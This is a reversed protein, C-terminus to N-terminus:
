GGDKEGREELDEVGELGVTLGELLDVIASLIQMIGLVVVGHHVGLRLNSFDESFEEVVESLGSCMLVLGVALKTVPHEVFSKLSLSFAM